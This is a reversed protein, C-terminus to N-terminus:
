KTILARIAGAAISSATTVVVTNVSTRDVNAYVNEKTSTDYLQVIVDSTGLNHTFTHSTGSSANNGAFTSGQGIYTSLAEIPLALNTQTNGGDYVLFTMEDQATFTTANNAIDVGVTATGSSYSVKLGDLGGPGNVNVNGIGIQSATAVDTDSQIVAFNSESASGSAAATQALVSDGPTLPTNPNSFFNGAVTVVYYDGVAVATNTYLNTGAVATVGTNANFGGKVNFGGVIANDVYTKNAADDGSTPTGVDTIKFGGLALDAEAEAWTSITVDTFKTKNVKWSTASTDPSWLLVDTSYNGPSTLSMVKTRLGLTQIITTGSKTPTQPIIGPQTLDEGFFVNDGDSVDQTAGSAGLKWKTYSVPADIWEVGNGSGGLSSLLQGATGTQDNVDKLDGQVRLTKLSTTPYSIDLTTGSVTLDSNGLTTTNTVFVPITGVTGSGGIGVGDPLSIWGTGNFYKLKNSTSNFIIDGANATGTSPDSTVNELRAGLLQNQNLQINDLFNIAM